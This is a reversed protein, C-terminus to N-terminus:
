YYQRAMHTWIRNGSYTPSLRLLFACFFPPLYTSVIAKMTSFVVRPDNQYDIGEYWVSYFCDNNKSQSGRADMRRESEGWNVYSSETGEWNKFKLNAAVNPDESNWLDKSLPPRSYPVHHEGALM